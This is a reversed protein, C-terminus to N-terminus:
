RSLNVIWNNVWTPDWNQGSPQWTFIGASGTNLHFTRNQSKMGALACISIKVRIISISWAKRGPSRFNYLSNFEKKKITRNLKGTSPSYLRICALRWHFAHLKFLLYNILQMQCFIINTMVKPEAWSDTIVPFLPTGSSFFMRLYTYYNTHFTSISNELSALFLNWWLIYLINNLFSVIDSTYQVFSHLSSLYWYTHPYIQVFM